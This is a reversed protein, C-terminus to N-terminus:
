FFYEALKIFEVFSYICVTKTNSSDIDFSPLLYFKRYEDIYCLLHHIDNVKNYVYYFKVKINLYQYLIWAFLIARDECDGKKKRWVEIPTAWYDFVGYINIDDGKINNEVWVELNHINYNNSDRYFKIPLPINYSPM